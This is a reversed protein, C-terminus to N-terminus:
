AGAGRRSAVVAALEAGARLSAAIPAGGLWAATFAGQFADGCGTTDVIRTALSPQHHAHGHQFAWAGAAGATLAIVTGTAASAARLPEVFGPHGGVFAIALRDLYPAIWTEPHAPDGDPSEQSFDAVLRPGPVTLGQRFVHGLEASSTLALADARALAALAAEDLRWRALVGPDFGCFVREGDAAIRIKQVASAGPLIALHAELGAVGRALEAGAADDGVAAHLAVDAGARAAGRAFNASIGGVHRDLEPLYVDLVIEGVAVLRLAM